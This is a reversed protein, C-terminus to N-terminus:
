EGDGSCIALFEPRVLDQLKDLFEENAFEHTLTPRGLLQDAKEQVDAFPGCSIGTYVGIIAAQEKTLKDTM